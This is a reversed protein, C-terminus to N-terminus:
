HHMLLPIAAEALAERTAGGLLTEIFRNHTYAGMVLLDAGESQARALLAAGIEQQAPDFRLVKTAVGAQELTRLLAEPQTSDPHDTQAILITVQDAALLLPMAADIAKEIAQSPAWAVAPHAAVTAARQGAAVVVCAGADYLAAKFGQRVEEADDPLAHGVVVLDAMVAESVISKGPDGILEVWRATSEKGLSPLWDDFVRHLHAAFDATEHSFRKSREETMMEETPMFTPDQALRPHLASVRTMGLRAAIGGIVHLVSAATEIRNLVALIREM